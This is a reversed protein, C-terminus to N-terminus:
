DVEGTTAKIKFKHRYPKGNIIALEEVAYYGASDPITYDLYYHGNGSSIMTQSHVLTESGDRVVSYIDSPTVDSSVWTFRITHGILTTKINSM